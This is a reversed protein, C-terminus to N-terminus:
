ETEDTEGFLSPTYVPTHLPIGLHTYALRTAVRGKPTRQIYGQQLLYPECVEELMDREDGMGAAIAEIGAPGGSFREILVRLYARDTPDLGAEDVELRSLAAVAVERDIRAAKAVEAFDRM